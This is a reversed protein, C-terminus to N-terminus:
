EVLTGFLYGDNQCMLRGILKSLVENVVQGVFLEMLLYASYGVDCGVLLGALYGEAVFWGVSM